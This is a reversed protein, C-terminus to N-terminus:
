CPAPWLRLQLWYRLELRCSASKIAAPLPCVGNVPALGALQGSHWPACITEHFELQYLGPSSGCFTATGLEKKNYTGKFNNYHFYEFTAGLDRATGQIVQDSFSVSTRATEECTCHALVPAAELGRTCVHRCHVRPGPVVVDARLHMECAHWNYVLVTKGQTITGSSTVGASVAYNLASYLTCNCQAHHSAVM